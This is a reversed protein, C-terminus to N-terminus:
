KYYDKELSEVIANQNPDRLIPKQFKCFLRGFKLESSSSHETRPNWYLHYRFSNRLNSLQKKPMNSNLLTVFVITRM